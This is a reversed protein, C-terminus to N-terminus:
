LFSDEIKCASFCFLRNLILKKFTLQLHVTAKASKQCFFSYFKYNKFHIKTFAEQKGCMGGEM